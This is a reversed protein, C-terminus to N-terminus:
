VLRDALERRVRLRLPLPGGGAKADRWEDSVRLAFEFLARRYRPARELTGLIRARVKEYFRPVGLGLTPRVERVETAVKEPATAYAIEGGAMLLAFHGATREFSHSLPLFSLTRDGEGVRVHELMAACNALLNGHTLMVGKPEGTTGSTYLITA